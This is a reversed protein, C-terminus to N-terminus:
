QHEELRIHLGPFGLALRLVTWTPLPAFTFDNGMTSAIRYIEYTNTNQVMATYNFKQPEIYCTDVESFNRM